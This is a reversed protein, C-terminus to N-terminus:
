SLDGASGRRREDLEAAACTRHRCRASEGRGDARHARQHGEPVAAVGLRRVNEPRLGTSRSATSFSVAAADVPLAGAIALVLSSKGAGNAGLLATIKGPPIEMDVGHIVTKGGRAVALDPSPCAESM